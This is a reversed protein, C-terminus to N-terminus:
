ALVLFTGFAPPCALNTGLIAATAIGGTLDDDVRVLVPVAISNVIVGMGMRLRMMRFIAGFMLMAM